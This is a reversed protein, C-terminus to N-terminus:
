KKLVQTYRTKNDANLVDVAFLPPSPNDTHEDVIFHTVHYFNAM